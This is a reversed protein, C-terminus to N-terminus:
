AGAKTDAGSFYRERIACHAIDYVEILSRGSSEALARCSEFEPSVKLVRGDWLGVKVQIAGLPTTVEEARRDLCYREMRAVRVGFTSTEHFLIEALKDSEGPSALVRLHLGPRNKKMQVPSFQVDRAGAKLLKEMLYGSVEPSMDDVETELSIIEESRISLAGAASVREGLVLRLCNPHEKFERKGAGYGIKEARMALPAGANEGALVRLIAAGTPTTQEREIPGPLTPLGKLIEATAPAPVPMTGHACKVLGSGVVVPSMSFSEIGLMEVGLMAGAIDVIADNAGVEHFHVKEPTTGHVHAEAEALLRYAAIARQTVRNGLNAAQVKEIVHKLHVHHHDHPHSHGELGPEHSHHEHGQSHEPSHEHDHGHAHEHGHEHHHQHGQDGHEREHGHQHAHSHAHEEEHDHDEHLDGLDVELRTVQIGARMVKQARLHFHGIPLARLRQELEKVDLGLDVLAGLTMDGSIGNFCDFHLHRSM